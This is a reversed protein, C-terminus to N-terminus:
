DKGSADCVLSGIKDYTDGNGNNKYLSQKGLVVGFLLDIQQKSHAALKWSYALWLLKHNDERQHRTFSSLCTTDKSRDYSACADTIGFRALNSLMSVQILWHLRDKAANSVQVSNLRELQLRSFGFNSLKSVPNRECGAPDERNRWDWRLATITTTFLNIQKVSWETKTAASVM